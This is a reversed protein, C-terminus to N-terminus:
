LVRVCACVCVFTHMCVSVCVCAHLYVRLLILVCLFPFIWLYCLRMCVYIVSKSLNCKSNLLPNLLVACEGLCNHGDHALMFGDYCTCRYNGPINICEHVCGGNYENECEDMDSVSDYFVLSFPPSSNSDGSYLPISLSPPPFTSHITPSQPTSIFM